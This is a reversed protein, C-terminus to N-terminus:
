ATIIRTRKQMDHINRIMTEPYEKYKAVEIPWHDNNSRRSGLLIANEYFVKAKDYKKRRYLIDGLLCWFEAMMPHATICAMTNRVAAYTDKFVHLQVQALYYRLMVSSKDASDRILYQEAKGFFEDYKGLSLLACALYYHPEPSAGKEEVWRRALKLHENRMDPADTSLIVIPMEKAKTDLMEYVPHVFKLEPDNWYRVEKNIVSGQFIQAYFAGRSKAQRIQDHGAVLVEWPQIYLNWDDGILKNRAESYNHNWPIDVIRAGSKQCLQITKDKSGM